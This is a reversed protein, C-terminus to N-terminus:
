FCNKYKVRVPMNYSIIVSYNSITKGSIDKYDFKINTSNSEKILNILLGYAGNNEQNMAGMNAYTFKIPIASSSKSCQMTDGSVKAKGYNTDHVTHNHRWLFILKSHNNLIDVLM